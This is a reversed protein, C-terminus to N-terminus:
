LLIKLYFKLFNLNLFKLEIERWFMETELVKRSEFDQNFNQFTVKKVEISYLKIFICFLCIKLYNKIFLAFNWHFWKSFGNFIEFLFSIELFFKKKEIGGM